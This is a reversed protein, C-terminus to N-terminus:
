HSHESMSHRSTGGGWLCLGLLLLLWAYFLVDCWCCLWFVLGWFWGFYAQRGLGESEPMLSLLPGCCLGAVPSGYSFWIMWPWKSRREGTLWCPSIGGAEASSAPHGRCWKESSCSQPQKRFLRSDATLSTDGSFQGCGSEWVGGEWFLCYCVPLPFPDQGLSHLPLGSRRLETVRTEGIWLMGIFLPFLVPHLRSPPLTPGLIEWHM